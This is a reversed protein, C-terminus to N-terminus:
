HNTSKTILQNLLTGFNTFTSNKKKQKKGRRRRRGRSDRVPKRVEEGSRTTLDDRISLLSNPPHIVTSFPDLRSNGISPFPKAEGKRQRSEQKCCALRAERKEDRAEQKCCALRAEESPKSVVFAQAFVPKQNTPLTSEM